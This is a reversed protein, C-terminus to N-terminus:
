SAPGENRGVLKQFEPDGHLCDLDSDKAAWNLNGYGAAIAKRLTELAEAKKGLLGYTCAANYLTNGDNPRLAVATQLHRISEDSGENSGALHNALLIRARVDEPVLELQQRLVKTVRERVHAADKKRGLVELANFYPIYTNYDDGNAEIARETLAAAEEHRGSAFYARGLTSWSGECDPKREIARQVLLVAQDYKKEAYLIRAHAVLVEPLDPALATARDCAALGREIWKPSQERIEFILGCLHAIGAHALAFNPDLQIAQEFMQLAYDMNERRTYSRGRLYFDYALPNETPKRAMTKEEQPTLTIRLAQAINRAIEEQIAFVDELQRDFREAWVSYRTSAEVLQATIRVRNGARRISGELVYTAGLQQGVQQATIPKDRFALM